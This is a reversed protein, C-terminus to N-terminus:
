GMWGSRSVVVIDARVSARGAASGTAWVSLGARSTAAATRPMATMTASMTHRLICGKRASARPEATSATTAPTGRPSVKVAKVAPRPDVIPPTPVSMAKPAIMPLSSMSEPPASWITSVMRARVGPGRRGHAMASIAKTTPMGSNKSTPM